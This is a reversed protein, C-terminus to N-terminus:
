NYYIDFSDFRSEAVILHWRASVNLHSALYIKNFYVIKSILIIFIKKQQQQQKKTLHSLSKEFTMRSCM